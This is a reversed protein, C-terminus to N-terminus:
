AQPNWLRKNESCQGTSPRQTLQLRSCSAERIMTSLHVMKPYLLLDDSTMKIIHRNLLVIINPEGKPGIVQGAM